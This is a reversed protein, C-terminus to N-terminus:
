DLVNGDSDYATLFDAWDELWEALSKQLQKKGDVDRLARYPSTAKLELLAKNDAHGPQELTGINFVTVAKMTEANIFCRSHEDAYGKSYEVFDDISTTTMVGRFRFRETMFRELSEINVNDPLLAVPCETLPLNEGSFATTTLKVIEKIANSDLQSM